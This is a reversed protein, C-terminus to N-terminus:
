APTGPAGPCDLRHLMRRDSDWAGELKMQVAQEDRVRLRFAAPQASAEPDGQKRRAGLCFGVSRHVTDQSIDKSM